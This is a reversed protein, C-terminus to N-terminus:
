VKFKEKIAKFATDFLRNKNLWYHWYMPLEKAIMDGEDKLFEVLEKPQSPNYFPPFWGKHEANLYGVSFAPQVELFYHQQTKADIIVDVGQMTLGLIDVARVIEDHHDHIFKECKKNYHIFDSKMEMTFKKTIAIWDTAPSMRAYGTVVKDGAVIIRYSYSYGRDEVTNQFKTLMMRCKIGGGYRPNTYHDLTKNFAHHLYEPNDSTVLYSENGSVSNNLRVLLPAGMFKDSKMYDGLQYKDKFVFYDPCSIGNRKWKRFARDKNQAYVFSRPPNIQKAKIGIEQWAYNEIQEANTRETDPRWYVIPHKHSNRQWVHFAQSCDCEVVTGFHKELNEKEFARLNTGSQAVIIM